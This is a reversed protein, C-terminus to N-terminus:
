FDAVIAAQNGGGETDFSELVREENLFPLLRVHVSAPRPHEPMRDFAPPLRHHADNFKHLALGLNKLHDMSETWAALERQRLIGPLLLSVTMSAVLVLLIANARQLTM